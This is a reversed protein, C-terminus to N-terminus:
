RYNIQFTPAARAAAGADATERKVPKQLKESFYHLM